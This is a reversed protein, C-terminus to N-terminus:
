TKQAGKRIAAFYDNVADRIADAVVHRHQPQRLLKEDSRNTLYGMELLVSPITHDALVYFRASRAPAPVMHVDDALQEIMSAQLGTSASLPATADDRVYVSAGRAHRDHAADAHIAILLDADHNRAFALRDALSMSRDTTRTLAVRYRGTALLLRRLDLATALTVTKELTGSVGIAGPDTGGHGPDIVVLPRHDDTKPSPHHAVVHLQRGPAHDRHASRGVHHHQAHRVHPREVLTRAAGEGFLLPGAVLGLAIGWGWSM